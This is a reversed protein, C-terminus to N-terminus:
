LQQSQAESSLARWGRFAPTPRVAQDFRGSGQRPAGVSQTSSSTARSSAVLEASEWVLNRGPGAPSDAPLIAVRILAPGSNATYGANPAVQWRMPRLVKPSVRM